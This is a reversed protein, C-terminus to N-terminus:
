AAVQVASNKHPKRVNPVNAVKPTDPLDFGYEFVVGDCDLQKIKIRFIPHRGHLVLRVPFCGKFDEWNRDLNRRKRNRRELRYQRRVLGLRELYLTRRYVFERSSAAVSTFWFPESKSIEAPTARHNQLKNTV